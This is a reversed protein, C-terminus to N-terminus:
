YNFRVGAFAGIGTAEFGAPVEYQKDFLNDIRGFLSTNDNIKYDAAVNVVVYSPLTVPGFTVRDFDQSEGIYFVGLTLLLPDITTWGASVGIKHRPRRPLDSGTIANIAETFTYDARVRLGDTIDASAFVEVGSTEAEGVNVVTSSFTAPDSVFEILDTIDNQFYTAGFRLKGELVAQEFGADWGLSEEPKLDRNAVFLFEPFDVFRDVLSPAKFAKGYSAKLTTGTQEILYSPAVRWTTVGGFSENDDYRINSAVFLNHVPEAELQAYGGRNSEEAAANDTELRENQYDAGIVATWGPSLTMVTHWDYKLRDGDSTTSNALVVPNLTDYGTESYSVGFFSTAAGGFARWVVEGRSFLQETSQHRQFNEPRSTFTGLDFADSTFDLDAETYRVVGNISLDKSVDYGLKTSFTWNEYDNDFRQTGPLLIGSPTVPIASARYHGINFAYNFGDQGGSLGAAQNFTSFSGGEAMGTFKPPGEGKKTYIVIVGGIADAGYLGSQPGRLVEIRDIDGTLMQGVDFTRGGSAPDSVDIGDVYIKTHDSETGRMFIAARAGPGGGQVVQVGPITRLIDPVTRHQRAAIEAATVVSVSSAIKEIPTSLGMASVATSAATEDASDPVADANNGTENTGPAAATKRPPTATQQAATPAVAPKARKEPLAQGAVAGDTVIIEPLEEPPSTALQAHAPVSALAVASLMLWTCLANRKFQLEIRKNPM